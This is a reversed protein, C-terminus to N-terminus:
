DFEAVLKLYVNPEGSMEGNLLFYHKRLWFLRIELSKIIMFEIKSDSFEPGERYYEEGQVISCEAHTRFSQLLQPVSLPICDLICTCLCRRLLHPLLQLYPLNTVFM